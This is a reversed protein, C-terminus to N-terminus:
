VVLGYTIKYTSAPAGCSSRGNGSGPIRMWPRPNRPPSTRRSDSGPSSESAYSVPQNDLKQPPPPTPVTLNLPLHHHDIPDHLPIQPPTPPPLRLHHPNQSLSPPPSPPLTAPTNPGDGQRSLLPLHSTPNSFPLPPSSCNTITILCTESEFGVTCAELEGCLAVCARQSGFADWDGFRSSRGGLGCFHHESSFRIRCNRRGSGTRLSTM